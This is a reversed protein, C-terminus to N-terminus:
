PTNAIPITSAYDYIARLAAEDSGYKALLEAVVTRPNDANDWLWQLTLAASNDRIGIQQKTATDFGILLAYVEALTGNETYVKPRSSAIQVFNAPQIEDQATMYGIEVAYSRSLFNRGLVLLRCM